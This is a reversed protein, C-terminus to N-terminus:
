KAPATLAEDFKPLEELNPMVAVEIRRNQAKGAVSDNPAVPDYSSFGAASLREPEMGSHIMFNVVEVARATSLYWNSPFRATHIPTDDTHGGVQFNRGSIAKLVGTLKALAERGAPKIETKGTDFLVSDPLKVEMRGKRIVVQLQGADIMGKLKAILKQFLETRARTAAEQRELEAIQARLTAIDASLSGKETALQASQQGLAQLRARQQEGLATLDSIQAQAADSAEKAKDLEAKQEAKSKTCAALEAVKADYTGTGVCGGGALVIIGLFAAKARM